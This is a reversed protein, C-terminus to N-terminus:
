WFFLLPLYCSPVRTLLVKGLMIVQAQDRTVVHFSLMAACMIGTGNLCPCCVSPDRHNALWIVLCTKKNLELIILAMKDICVCVGEWERYGGWIDEGSWMVRGLSGYM